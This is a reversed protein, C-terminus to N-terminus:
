QSLHHGCARPTNGGLTGARRSDFKKWSVFPKAPSATVVRLGCAPCFFCLQLLECDALQAFFAYGEPTGKLRQYIHWNKLLWIKKKRDDLFFRWVDIGLQVALDDLVADDQIALNAEIPQRATVYETIESIATDCSAALSAIKSDRAISSPLLATVSM